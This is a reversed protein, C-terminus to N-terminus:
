CGQLFLIIENKYNNYRLYEVYLINDFDIRPSIQGGGGKVSMQYKEGTELKFLFLKESLKTAM